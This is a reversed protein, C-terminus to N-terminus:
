VLLSIVILVLTVLSMVIPETYQQWKKDSKYQSMWSSLSYLLGTLLLGYQIPPVFIYHLAVALQTVMISALLSNLLSDKGGGQLSLLRFSVFLGALFILLFQAIMRVNSNKLAITLLLYLGFAASIVLISYGLSNIGSDEILVYEARLLLAVISYGTLFVVWWILSRASQRLVISLIMIAIFPLMLHPLLRLFTLRENRWKPHTAFVWIAGVAGLLALLIPILNFFSFEFQIGLIEIAEAGVDTPLLYILAFGLALFALLISFRNLYLNDHRLNQM